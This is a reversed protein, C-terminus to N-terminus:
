AFTRDELPEGMRPFPGVSVKHFKFKEIIVNDDIRMGFVMATRAKHVVAAWPGGSAHAIEVLRGATMQGYLLVVQRACARAEGDILEPLPFTEGTLPNRRVARFTIPLDAAAKFAQYAAPHVPGYQWAEFYGLVLPRGTKILHTGHAFYLLKQLALNTVGHKGAAEDLMFNCVIRPDTAQERMEQRERFM